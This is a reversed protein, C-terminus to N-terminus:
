WDIKMGATFRANYFEEQMMREKVGQYYRLPQNTLNNAEIFFRASQNLAWSGNVDLNTAGDYYRDFFPEDGLEGPDIFSSQFNLSGRLTLRETDFSLSVNGTHRATGPLPLDEAERGEIGLGEVQSDTFTYNGYFGVYRLVGPLFDLQRQFAVEAGVLTAGAGNQPQTILSFTEGTVADAANRRGYEFIFDDINKYFVGGSVLGVSRFYREAMFDLNMSTTPRLEPNGLALESDERSVIRYPVLDYYNPRSISNTWSARLVTADDVDFKVLLSPLVNLYADSGSTRTATEEDADFDFGRYEIGTGELRVGATVQMRPSFERELRVYGAQVTEDADFNGPLYEAPQDDREFKSPNYVDLGALFTERTFPGVRYKSGALYDPNTYDAWDTATMRSLSGDLATARFFSNDRMKSKMRLRGGVKLETAGLPLTLDIRANRDTDDTYGDLIEIRRFQFNAAEVQAPNVASPLPKSPDSVDVRVPVNRARWEIYREDPRDESAKAWSGSWELRIRDALLHEGSLGVNRTRQDELRTNRNRPDPGGGKTQHRIEARSVIGQADPESLVWRSRYRNEWDDRHNYMARLTLTHDANVRFDTTAAISRRTRQIRYERIDFEEVFARGNAGEDWVGEINDSGLYHDVWSGSLVVGIREDAFRRGAVFSGSPGTQGSLLNHLGSGTVSFRPRSPAARTVINVSGGIADADMDPTLVKNVEVAEVMDAPILDLQVQRVDGEASPVREGNLTVSNLRPETGRILGFRAEGQDNLVTIGPIRKMADGINADPFRGIQDAAVVNTVNTATKQQNLARAQGQRSGVITVGEVGVVGPQLPIRVTATAGADVRVEIRATQYGMYSVTLTRAGAPLSLLLFRGGSASIAGSSGGEVSIQAGALPLGTGADVVEGTVSGVSAAQGQLVSPLLGLLLGLAPIASRFRFMSQRKRSNM